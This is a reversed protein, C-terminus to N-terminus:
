ANTNFIYTSNLRIDTARDYCQQAAYLDDALDIAQNGSDICTRLESKQEFFSDDNLHLPNSSFIKTLSYDFTENYLTFGYDSTKDYLVANNVDLWQVTIRVAYDKTLVDLTITTISPFDNWAEYETSTGQEVLHNGYCDTIYIRRKVVAVDTGTSTDTFNIESSSGATQTATFNVTLSM